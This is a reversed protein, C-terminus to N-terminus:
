LSPRSAPPQMEARRRRVEQGDLQPRHRYFERRKRPRTSSGPRRGCTCVCARSRITRTPCSFGPRQCLSAARAASSAPPSSNSVIDSRSTM